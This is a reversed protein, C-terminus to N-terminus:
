VRVLCSSFSATTTDSESLSSPIYHTHIHHVFACVRASSFRTGLLFGRFRAFTVALLHLYPVSAGVAYAPRLSCFAHRLVPSCLVVSTYLISWWSVPHTPHCHFAIPLCKRHQQLYCATTVSVCHVRVCLPCWASGCTCEFRPWPPCSAAYRCKCSVYALCMRCVARVLFPPTSKHVLACLSIESAM